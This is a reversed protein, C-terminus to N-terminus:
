RDQLYSSQAHMYHMHKSTRIFECPVEIQRDMVCLFERVFGVGRFNVTMDSGNTIVGEDVLNATCYSLRPIVVRRRIVSQSHGPASAVM